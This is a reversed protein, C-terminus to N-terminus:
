EVRFTAIDKLSNGIIAYEGSKLRQRPRLELYNIFLFVGRSPSVQLRELIRYDLRINESALPSFGVQGRESVVTFRRRQNQSELQLLLHPPPDMKDAVFVYFHPDDGRLVTAAQSGGLTVYSTRSRRAVAFGDIQTVGVEFPLPSLKNQATQYYVRTLDPSEPFPEQAIALLNHNVNAIAFHFVLVTPVFALPSLAFKPLNETFVLKKSQATQLGAKLRFRDSLNM